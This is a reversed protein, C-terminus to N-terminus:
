VCGSDDVGNARGAAASSCSFPEHVGGDGRVPRGSLPSKVKVSALLWSCSYAQGEAGAGTEMPFHFSDGLGIPCTTERVPTL